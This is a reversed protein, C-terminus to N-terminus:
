KQKLNPTLIISDESEELHQRLIQNMEGILRQRDEWIQTHIKKNTSFFRKQVNEAAQTFNKEAEIQDQKAKKVKALNKTISSQNILKM